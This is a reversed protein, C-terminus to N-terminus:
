RGDGSRVVGAEVLADFAAGTIGIRGLLEENHQGLSPAPTRISGPRDHLRPVVAHMPLLGMDPDPYDAILEREVVHPDAVLGAADNIPGITVEAAEFFAVNEDQTRQGIFAGIIADLEDRRPAAPRRQHPLASREGPRPPRDVPVPARGHEPDLGVPLCLARRQLSLRQAAGREDLPQRHAAEGRRHAPPEGGAPELISFLPDFLPLDLVQGRGGNMEVERLAIMAGLRLARGHLRRSVDAAAGARPRRLREDLRLGFLRRDAHRLGAQPSLARGPGLRLHAPDVLEPNIAHLAAPSLGMDELVGPRFSEVLIAATPALERVITAGRPDRLDLAVSKKNRSYVKWATEVGKTQWSRLTDGEPPEIKIVEAGFDGLMQTLVNGAFLRSLDLIRVGDLIGKAEPRYDRRHLERVTM